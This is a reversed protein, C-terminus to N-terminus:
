ATLAKVHKLGLVGNLPHLHTDFFNGLESPSQEPDVSEVEQVQMEVGLEIMKQLADTLQYAGRWRRGAQILDRLCEFLMKSERVFYCGALMLDTRRPKQILCGVRGERLEVLGYPREDIVRRVAITSYESKSFSVWDIDLMADPDVILVPERSVYDSALSVTYGLGKNGTQEVFSVSMENHNADIYSRIEHSQYNVLFIFESVPLQCLPELLHALTPGAKCPLSSQLTHHTCTKLCPFRREAFPFIVKM